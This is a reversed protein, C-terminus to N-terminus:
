SKIAAEGKGILMPHIQQRKKKFHWLLFCNSDLILTLTPLSQRTHLSSEWTTSVSALVVDFVPGPLYKTHRHTILFAGVISKRAATLSHLLAPCSYYTFLLFHSAECSSCMCLHDQCWEKVRLQLLTFCLLAATAFLRCFINPKLVEFSSCM